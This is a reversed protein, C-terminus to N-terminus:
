ILHSCFLKMILLLVLLALNLGLDQICGTVATKFSFKDTSLSFLFTELEESFSFFGVALTVPILFFTNTDSLAGLACEESFRERLHMAQM